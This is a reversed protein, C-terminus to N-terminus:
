EDSGPIKTLLAELRSTAANIKESLRKNESDAGALQQRLQINEARLQRCLRVFQNIKDELSNLESEM